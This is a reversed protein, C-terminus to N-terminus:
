KVRTCVFIGINDNDALFEDWHVKKHQRIADHYQKAAGKATDKLEATRYGARRESRAQNRWYTYIRRLQTLDATWWRKRRLSPKAKLTLTHVAKLVVFMLRDTNQQVTGEAPLRGM